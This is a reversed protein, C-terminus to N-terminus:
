LSVRMKAQFSPTKWLEKSVESRKERTTERTRSWKERYEKKQWNAKAKAGLIMRERESPIHSKPKYEGRKWKRSLKCSGCRFGPFKRRMFVAVVESKCDQCIAVVKKGVIIKKTGLERTKKLDIEPYDTKGTKKCSMCKHTLRRKAVNYYIPRSRGCDECIVFAKKRCSITEETLGFEQKTRLWDIM